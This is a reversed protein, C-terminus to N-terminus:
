PQEEKRIREQDARFRYVDRGPTTCEQCGCGYRHIDSVHFVQTRKEWPTTYLSDDLEVHARERENLETVTGPYYFPSQYSEAWWPRVPINFFPRVLVRDGVKM